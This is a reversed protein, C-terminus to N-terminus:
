ISVYMIHFIEGCPIKIRKAGRRFSVCKYLDINSCDLWNNVATIPTGM